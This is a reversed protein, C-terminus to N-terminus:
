FCINSSDNEISDAKYSIFNSSKKNIEERNVKEKRNKRDAKGERKERQEKQIVYSLLLSATFDLCVRLCPSPELNNLSHGREGETHHTVQLNIQRGDLSM